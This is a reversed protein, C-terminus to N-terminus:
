VCVCVCHTVRNDRVRSTYVCVCHTVTNGRVKNTCVCVTLAAGTRSEITVFGTYICVDSIYIYIHIHIPHTYICTYMYVCACV